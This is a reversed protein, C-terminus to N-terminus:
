KKDLNSGLLDKISKLEDRLRQVEAELDSAKHDAAQKANDLSVFTKHETDFVALKLQLDALSTKLGIQIETLRCILEDLKAQQTMPGIKKISKTM